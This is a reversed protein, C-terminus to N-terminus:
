VHARGIKIEEEVSTIKTDLGVYDLSASLSFLNGVGYDVVAIM